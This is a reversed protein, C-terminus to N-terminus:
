KWLAYSRGPFRIGVSSNEQGPTELVIQSTISFCNNNPWQNVPVQLGPHISVSSPTQNSQQDFFGMNKSSMQSFNGFQEDPLVSQLCGHHSQRQEDILFCPKESINTRNMSPPTHDSSALETRFSETKPRSLTSPVTLCSSSDNTPKEEPLSLNERKEMVNAVITDEHNERKETAKLRKRSRLPTKGEKMKTRSAPKATMLKTIQRKMRVFMANRAVKFEKLLSETFTKLDALQTSEEAKNGERKRKKMSNGKSRNVVGVKNTRSVHLISNNAEVIKQLPHNLQDSLQSRQTNEIEEKEEDDEKHRKQCPESDSSSKSDDSSSNIEDEKKRYEWLQHFKQEPNM